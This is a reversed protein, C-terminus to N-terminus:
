STACCKAKAIVGWWSKLGSSALSGALYEDGSIMAELASQWWALELESGTQSAPVERRVLDDLLEGLGQERMGELLLTREPLTELSEKSAVLAELRGVLERANFNLLDGGDATRDLVTGLALLKERLGM